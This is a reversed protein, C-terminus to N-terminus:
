LAHTWGQIALSSVAVAVWTVFGLVLPRTGAGVFAAWYGQLGVAALAVVLVWRGVLQIDPAYGGLLGLSNLIAALLFLLIFTPVAQYVRKALSVQSSAASRDLWPMALGFGVVLPIILTTRTLKVITAL